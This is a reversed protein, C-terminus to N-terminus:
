DRIFYFLDSDLQEISVRKLKLLSDKIQELYSKCVDVIDDKDRINILIEGLDCISSNLIKLLAKIEASVENSKSARRLEELEALTEDPVKEIEVVATAIEAGDISNNLQAELEEVKRRSYELEIEMDKLKEYHERNKKELRDYSQSINEYLRQKEMVEQEAKKLKEELEKYQKHTTIDGSIVAQQLELPASPKSIAFLLSPQIKEADDINPFNKRVYEFANIYNRATRDTIGISECWKGFTGHYHHALREKVEKLEKGIAYASIFKIQTIRLEKDRLFAATDNDVKSYDFAKIEKSELTKLEKNRIIGNDDIDEMGERIDELLGTLIGKGM